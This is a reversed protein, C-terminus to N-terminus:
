LVENTILIFTGKTYNNKIEFNWNCDRIREKMNNVGNGLITKTEIFGIGDDIVEIRWKKKSEINLYLNKCQSHKFSNNVSEQIVSLLQLVENPTFIIDEEINEQIHYNIEPFNDCMRKLWSKLKDSLATLYIQENKLVWVANSLENVIHNANEELQLSTSDISAHNKKITNVNAIIASAYVGINDHLDSAIRKREYEKAIFVEKEHRIKESQIFSDLKIKQQHQYNKYILYAIILSIVFLIISGYLWSRSKVLALQQQIITNEKKQLDYKTTLAALEDSTNRKYLDDKEKIIKELTQAYNNMDNDKYYCYSLIELIHNKKTNINNKEIISLAEKVTNIGKKTEGNETYFVGLDAMDSVIFFLDGIKKRIELAAILDDQAKKKDKLNLYLISRVNLANCLISINEVKTSLQIANNIFYLASDYKTLNNYCSAINLYSSVKFKQNSEDAKLIIVKRCWQICDNYKGMELYTWALGSQGKLIYETSNLEEGLNILQYYINLAEKFQGQRVLFAGKTNYIIAQIKSQKYKEPCTKEIQALLENAEKLKNKKALASVKYIDLRWKIEDNKVQENIKEGIAIYKSFTDTHLSHSNDLLLILLDLQDNENTSQHFKEKLSEIKQTQSFVLFQLM